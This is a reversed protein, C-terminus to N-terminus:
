VSAAHMRRHVAMIRFGLVIFGLFAAASQLMLFDALDPADFEVAYIAPILLALMIVNIVLQPVFTESLARLHGFALGLLSSSVLFMVLTLALRASYDIVAGGVFLFVYEGVFYVVVSILLSGGLLWALGARFYAKACEIHRSVQLSHVQAFAVSPIILLGVVTMFVSLEAVLHADLRALRETLLYFYLKQGSMGAAIPIGTRLFYASHEKAQTWSVYRQNGSLRILFILTLLETVFFYAMAGYTFDESSLIVFLGALLGSCCLTISSRANAYGSAKGTAELFLQLFSNIVLLPTSAIYILSLTWFTQPNMQRTGDAGSILYTVLLCTLCALAGLCLALTLGGTFVDRQESPSGALSATKNGVMALIMTFFGSIVSAVALVYAFVALDDSSKHAMLLFVASIGLTPIMRGLIFAPLSKKISQNYNL